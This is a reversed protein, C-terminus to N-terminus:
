THNTELKVPKSENSKTRVLLFMNEQQTFHLGTVSSVLWVTISEMILYTIKYNGWWISSEIQFRRWFYILIEIRRSSDFVNWVPFKASSQRRVVAAESLNEM